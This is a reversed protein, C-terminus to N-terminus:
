VVSKRDKVKASATLRRLEDPTRQGLVRVGPLKYRKWYPGVVDIPQGSLAFEQVFAVRDRDAGGVFLVDIEKSQCESPFFLKPDYAFPLYHVRHCGIRTFDAINARRTTFVLDYSPLARLFWTARHARNWPDDTSYNICTLGLERLDSLCNGTLPATGTTLLVDPRDRECVERVLASFHALRSPRRRLRFAVSNWARSRGWANASDVLRVEHGCEQAARRLSDGVHTLGTRGVLTLKM